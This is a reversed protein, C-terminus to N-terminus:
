LLLFLFPCAQKPVDHIRGAICSWDGNDGSRYHVQGPEATGGRDVEQVAGM